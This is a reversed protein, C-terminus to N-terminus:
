IILIPAYGVRNSANIPYISQRVVTMPMIYKPATSSLGSIEPITLVLKDANTASFIVEVTVTQKIKM